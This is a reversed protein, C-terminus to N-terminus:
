KGHGLISGVGRRVYHVVISTAMSLLRMLRFPAGLVASRRFSALGDGGAVVEESFVYRVFDFVRSPRFQLSPHMRFMRALLFRHIRQLTKRRDLTYGDPWLAIYRALTREFRYPRLRPLQELVWAPACVGLLRESLSLVSSVHGGVGWRCSREVIAEWDLQVGPRSLMMAVDLLWILRNNVDPNAIIAEDSVGAAYRSYYGHEELHTCLYIFHDEDSLCRVAVGGMSRIAARSLVDRVPMRWPRFRHTLGWHLEVKMASRAAYSLHIHNKLYFGVPLLGPEREYGLKTLAGQAGPFDGAEILLDLDAFPRLAPDPYVSFALTPGKIPIIPVNAQRAAILIAELESLAKLNARGTADFELALSDAASSPAERKLSTHLVSLLGHQRGLAMLSQFTLDDGHPEPRGRAPDIVCGCADMLLRCAQTRAQEQRESEIAGARKLISKAERPTLGYQSAIDSVAPHQSAPRGARSTAKDM